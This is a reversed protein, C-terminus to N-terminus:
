ICVVNLPPFGNFEISSYTYTYAGTCLIHVRDGVELSEPLTYGARDYMVDFSDCTPGALVVPMAPDGDRATRIPYKISEGVTEILGNLVGADLYVWRREDAISKRAILVVEADIVGAEAVLARGVEAVLRLRGAGFGFRRQVSRRIAAAYDAIPPVPTRYRAPFGGGLNILDLEIGEAALARFVDAAAAVGIDWQEVDTQQSGVHFSVGCPRLGLERARLLLECASAVDCGFKRSLPWEAGGTEILLRCFVSAGPAAAALKALEGEADFAFVRVGREYAGAIDAQKKITSGFSIRSAPAGAELCRDIEALGAADFGSGRAALRRVVDPHPNAKLAYHVDIGDLAGVIESYKREIADVDILLYPTAVAAEDLFAQLRASPRPRDLEITRAGAHAPTGGSPVDIRPASDAAIALAESL